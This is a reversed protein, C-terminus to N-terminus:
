RRRLRALIPGDLARALVAGMGLATLDALWDMGGGAMATLALRAVVLAAVM